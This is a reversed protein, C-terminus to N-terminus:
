VAAASFLPLTTTCDLNGSVFTKEFSRRSLLPPTSIKRETAQICVLSKTVRGKNLGIVTLVPLAHASGQKGTPFTERV